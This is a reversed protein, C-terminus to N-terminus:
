YNLNHYLNVYILIRLNTYKKARSVPTDPYSTSPTVTEWPRLHINIPAILSRLANGLEKSRALAIPSHELVSSATKYLVSLTLQPLIQDGSPFGRGPLSQKHTLLYPVKVDKWGTLYGLLATFHLDKVIHVEDWCIRPRGSYWLSSQDAMACLVKLYPLRLM